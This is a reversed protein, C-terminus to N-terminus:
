RSLLYFLDSGLTPWFILFLVPWFFSTFDVSDIECFIKKSWFGSNSFRLVDLHLPPQTSKISFRGFKSDLRTICLIYEIKM